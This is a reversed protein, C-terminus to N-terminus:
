PPPADTVTVSMCDTSALGSAGTVEVCVQSMGVPLAVSAQPGSATGFPGSWHYALTASDLDFSGGADLIVSATGAAAAQVAQDPGANAVPAFGESLREAIRGVIDTWTGKCPIPTCFDLAQVIARDIKYTRGGAEWSINARTGLLTTPRFSFNDLPIVSTPDNEKHYQDLVGGVPSPHKPRELFLKRNELFRFQSVNSGDREGSWTFDGPPSWYGTLDFHAGILNAAKAVTFEGSRSGITTARSSGDLQLALDFLREGEAGTANLRLLEDVAVNMPKWVPGSVDPVCGGVGCVPTPKDADSPDSFTLFKGTYADDSKNISFYEGGWPSESSWKWTGVGPVRRAIVATSGGFTGTWADDGYSVAIDEHKGQGSVDDHWSERLLVTGGEVVLDLARWARIDSRYIMGTLKGSGTVRALYLRLSGGDAAQGEWFRGHSKAPPVVRAGERSVTGFKEESAVVAEKSPAGKANRARSESILDRYALTAETLHRQLSPDDRDVRLLGFRAAPSYGHHWEFNDMLSWYLYGIVTAGDDMAQQVERVHAVLHPARLAESREPLGSETIMVPVNWAEKAHMIMEYLGQPYIPWGLDNLIEHDLPEGWQNDHTSGGVFGAGVAALALDHYIHFRRYYNIGLFDLHNAWEPHHTPQASQESTASELYNTDENGRVVANVFYDNLFYSFNSAARDNDTLVTGLFGAPTPTTPGMAHAFGVLAPGSGDNAADVNDCPANSGSCTKIVDYARVHAEVLNRLVAKAKGGQLVFGPSWIGAIYGLVVSGTPENITLWYDVKDRFEPVVREVYQAWQTLTEDSEWGRLSELYGPDTDSPSCFILIEPCPTTPPHLVWAPLTFHNLTVVPELGRERMEDIMTKYQDIAAQDFQDKAPEIRAWELSIRFANLGIAQSTDFDSKYVDPKAFDLARGAPSLDVAPGKLASNKAVSDHISEDRMFLDYDNCPLSSDSCDIGGEVQYAATSAGWLFPMSESQPAPSPSPAPSCGAVFMAAIEVLVVVREIVSAVPKRNM